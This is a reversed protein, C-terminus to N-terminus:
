AKDSAVAVPITIFGDHIQGFSLAQARQTYISYMGYSCLFADLMDEVHKHEKKSVPRQRFDFYRDANVVTEDDKLKRVGELIAHLNKNTEEYAVK